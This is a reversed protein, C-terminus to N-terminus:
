AKAVEGRKPNWRVTAKCFPCELTIDKRFTAGGIIVAHHSAFAVPKRCAPCPLIKFETAEEGPTM